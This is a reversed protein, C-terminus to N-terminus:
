GGIVQTANEKRRVPTRSLAPACSRSLAPVL